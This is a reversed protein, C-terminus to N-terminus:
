LINSTIILLATVKTVIFLEERKVKGAKLWKDLVKGIVHENEYVTATDIHRYGAELAAELAKELDEDKAQFWFSFLNQLFPFFDQLTWITQLLISKPFNPSWSRSGCLIVSITKLRFDLFSFAKVTFIQYTKHSNQSDNSPLLRIM